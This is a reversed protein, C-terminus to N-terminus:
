VWGKNESQVYYFLQYVGPFFFILFFRTVKKDHKSWIKMCYIWLVLTPVALLIRIFLINETLKDDMKVIAQYFAFVLLLINIFFLFGSLKKM